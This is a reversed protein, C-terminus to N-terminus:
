YLENQYGIFNLNFKKINEISSLYYKRLIESFIKEIDIFLYYM